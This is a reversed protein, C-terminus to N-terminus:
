VSGRTFIISYYVFLWHKHTCHYLYKWRFMEDKVLHFYKNWQVFSFVNMIQKIHCKLLDKDAFCFESHKLGNMRHYSHSITSVMRHIQYCENEFPTYNNLHLWSIIYYYKQRIFGALSICFYCLELPSHSYFILNKTKGMKAPTM